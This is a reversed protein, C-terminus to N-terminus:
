ITSRDVPLHEDEDRHDLEHHAMLIWAHMLVYKVVVIPVHHADLVYIPGLHEICCEQAALRLHQTTPLPPRLLELCQGALYETVLVPDRWQPRHDRLSSSVDMQQAHMEPTIHLALLAIYVEELRTAAQQWAAPNSTLLRPFTDAIVLCHERLLKARPHAVFQARTLM